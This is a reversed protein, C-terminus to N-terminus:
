FIFTKPRAFGPLVVAEADAFVDLGLSGGARRGIALRTVGNDVIGTAIRGDPSLQATLSEPIEEVAGDILILDYPAGAPYGKELAGEVLEVNAVGALAKRAQAALAADSEVAIVRAALKALVAASYGTAAGVLLVSEDSMLEAESLLRGTVMPPNLARGGGLPVPTDVYALAARDGPVFGERPVADMAAVVRQDSVATTRLQSAVMAHRMARFYQESM